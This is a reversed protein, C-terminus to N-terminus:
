LVGLQCTKSKRNKVDSTFYSPFNSYGVGKAELMTRNANFFQTLTIICLADCNTLQEIIAGPYFNVHQEQLIYLQLQMVSPSGDHMKFASLRWFAKSAFVYRADIYQTIEDNNELAVMAGDNELMAM